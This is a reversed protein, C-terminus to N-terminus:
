ESAASRTLTVTIPGETGTLTDGDESITLDGPSGVANAGAPKLTVTNDKVEYEGEMTNTMVTMTYKGDSKFEMAEKLAGMQAMAAAAQPDTSSMSMDWKGVISTGGCGALLTLAAAAALISLLTRM